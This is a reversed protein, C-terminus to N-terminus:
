DAIIDDKLDVEARVLIRNISDVVIYFLNSSERMASKIEKYKDKFIAVRIEGKALQEATSIKATERLAEELEACRPCEEAVEEKTQEKQVMPQNEKGIPPILETHLNGRNDVLMGQLKKVKRSLSTEESKSYRRKYDEPLCNEIWKATIKGERIKDKLIYKILRSIKNRECIKEEDLGRALEMVLEKSNTGFQDVLNRLDAILGKIPRPLDDPIRFTQQGIEDNM